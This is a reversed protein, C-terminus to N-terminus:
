EHQKEEWVHLVRGRKAVHKRFRNMVETGAETGFRPNTLAEVDGVLILMRRARSFAVNLRRLDHVWDLRPGLFGRGKCVACTSAGM